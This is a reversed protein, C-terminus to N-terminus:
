KPREIKNISNNLHLMDKNCSKIYNQSKQVHIKLERELSIIVEVQQQRTQQLETQTNVINNKTEVSITSDNSM